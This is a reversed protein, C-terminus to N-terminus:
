IPRNKDRRRDSKRFPAFYAKQQSEEYAGGWTVVTLTEADVPAALAILAACIIVNFRQM